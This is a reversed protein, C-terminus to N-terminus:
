KRKHSVREGTGWGVTLKSYLEEAREAVKAELLV